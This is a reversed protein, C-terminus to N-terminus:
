PQVSRAQRTQALARDILAIIQETQKQLVRQTRLLDDAAIVRQLVINRLKRDRLVRPWDTSAVPPPLATRTRADMWDDLLDSVELQENIFLQNVFIWQNNQWREVERLRMAQGAFRALALRLEADRVLRLDNANVLNDYASTVPEFGILRFVAAVLSSLSDPSPARAPHHAARLLEAGARQVQHHRDAASDLRARNEVFDQRLAILNARQRRAEGRDVWWSELSFAILIGAVLIVLELLYLRRHWSARAAPREAEVQHRLGYLM